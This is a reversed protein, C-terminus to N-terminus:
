YLDGDLGVDDIIFGSQDMLNEFQSNGRTSYVAIAIKIPANGLEGKLEDKMQGYRELVYKGDKTVVLSDKYKLDAKRIFTVEAGSSKFIGHEM